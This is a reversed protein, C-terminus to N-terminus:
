SKQWFSNDLNLKYCIINRPAFNFKTLNNCFNSFNGHFSRGDGIKSECLNHSQTSKALLSNHLNFLFLQDGRRCIQQKSKKKFRLKLWKKLKKTSDDM